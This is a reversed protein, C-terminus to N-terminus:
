SHAPTVPEYRGTQLQRRHLSCHEIYNVIELALAAFVSQGGVFFLVGQWGWLVGFAVAFLFSIGYWWILENHISIGRM